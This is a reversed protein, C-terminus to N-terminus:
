IAVLPPAPDLADEVVIARLAAFPADLRPQAQALCDAERACLDSRVLMHKGAYAKRDVGVDIEGAARWPLFRHAGREGLQERGLDMFLPQRPPRLMIRPDVGGPIGVEAAAEGLRAAVDLVAELHRELMETRAALLLARELDELELEIDK